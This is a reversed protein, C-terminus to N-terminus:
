MGWRLDPVAASDEQDLRCVPPNRMRLSINIAAPTAARVAAPIATAAPSWSARLTLATVPVNLAVPAVTVVRDHLVDSPLVIVTVFPLYVPM